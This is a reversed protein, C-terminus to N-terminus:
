ELRWIRTGSEETRCSYHGAGFTYEAVRCALHIKVPLIRSEGVKLQRLAAAYGKGRPRVATKSIPGIGQDSEYLRKKSPM